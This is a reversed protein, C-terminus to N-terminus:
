KSVELFLLRLLFPVSLDRPPKPLLVIYGGAQKEPNQSEWSEVEALLEVVNLSQLLLNLRATVDKNHVLELLEIM